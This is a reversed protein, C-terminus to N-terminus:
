WNMQKDTILLTVLISRMLPRDRKYDCLTSGEMWRSKLVRLVRKALESLPVPLCVSGFTNDGRSRPQYFNVHSLNQKVTPRVSRVKTQFLTLNM